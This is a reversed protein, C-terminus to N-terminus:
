RNDVVPMVDNIELPKILAPRFKSAAKTSTFNRTHKLATNERERERQHITETKILENNLMAYSVELRGNTFEANWEADEIQVFVLGLCSCSFWDVNEKM